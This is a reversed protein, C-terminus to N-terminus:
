FNKNLKKSEMFIRTVVSFALVASIFLGLVM